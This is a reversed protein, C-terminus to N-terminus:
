KHKQAVRIVIRSADVAEVVGSHKATVCVRSDTAVVREIGTGVLPKEARLTPVAQRQMNSGMLARNADDHELFPILSAAVSSIQKSDIDILTVNESNVLVFENKHRCSILDDMLKGKTDVNANAQAITHTIEDIASVYIVESTVKGKKVVQYPTELFGYNNTKAYVALNAYRCLM